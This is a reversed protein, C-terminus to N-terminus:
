FSHLKRVETQDVFRKVWEIYENNSVFYAWGDGLTPNKGDSSVMKNRLRFNADTAVFKQFLYRVHTFSSHLLRRIHFFFPVYQLKSPWHRWDTPLNRDPQPCAPCEVALEGQTTGQVGNPDHGRGARKCMKLHRWEVM